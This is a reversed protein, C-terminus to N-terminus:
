SPKLDVEQFKEASIPDRAPTKLRPSENCHHFMFIARITKSTAKPEKDAHLLEELGAMDPLQSKASVGIWDAEGIRSNV